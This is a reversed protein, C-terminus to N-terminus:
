KETARINSKRSAKMKHKQWRRRIVFSDPSTIKRPPKYLIEFNFKKKMEQHFHLWSRLCLARQCVYFAESDTASNWTEFDWSVWSISLRSKEWHWGFIEHAPHSSSMSNSLFGRQKEIKKKGSCFQNLKQIFVVPLTSLVLLFSQLGSSLDSSDLKFLKWFLCFCILLSKRRSFM